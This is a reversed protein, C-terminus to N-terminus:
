RMASPGQTSRYFPNKGHKHDTADRIVGIEPIRARLTREVGQKLTVNVMGCGQCGGGFTLAVDGEATVEFLSVRGRHSALQPNIEEAIIKQVRDVLSAQEASMEGRLRPARINIEGGTKSVVFDVNAGELWPLSNSDIVLQWGPYKMVQDDSRIEHSECFTMECDASLSGPERVRIRVAWDPAGQERLLKRFYQQAEPGIAIM